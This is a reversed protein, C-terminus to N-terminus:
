LTGVVAGDKIVTKKAFVAEIDDLPNRDFIVLQAKRGAEVAGYDSEREIVKAGGLTAIALADAAPIGARKLLVIESLCVRGPDLWDSGVALPVGAEYMQRVYGALIEYGRAARQRQAETWASSRDFVGLSKTTFPALGVRQAFIHLTPTVTAGPKALEDILALMQPNNPGLENFHELIGFYFAAPLEPGLERRTREWAAAVAPGPLSEVGVTYAHEFHRVGIDLARRISMVGFDVHTDIHMGLKKAEAFAGVYEPERLRWYLKVDRIGADYYRRVKAAADASDRVIAHGTYPVRGEEHSALAGGSPIFDPANASPKMWQRMLELYREDGGAERVTTV